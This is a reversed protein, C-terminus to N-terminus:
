SPFAARVTAAANPGWVLVVDREAGPDSVRSVDGAILSCGGVRLPTHGTTLSSEIRERLSRRSPETPRPAPASDGDDALMRGMTIGDLFASLLEAARRIDAPFATRSEADIVVYNIKSSDQGDPM